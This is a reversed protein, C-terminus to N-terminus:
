QIQCVSQAIAVPKGAGNRAIGELYLTRATREVLRATCAIHTEDPSVPRLYGTNLQSTLSPPAILYSFPGLTNDLAAVIFGGQMFGLPNRYRTLVPFRLTLSEGEVYDLVEAQMDLLCPPPIVLPSDAPLRAKLLATFADPDLPM